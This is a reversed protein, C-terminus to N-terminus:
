QTVERAIPEAGEELLQLYYKELGPQREINRAIEEDIRRATENMLREVAGDAAGVGAEIQDIAQDLVRRVVTPSVFPSFRPIRGYPISEITLDHIEKEGPWDPHYFKEKSIYAQNGPIADVGENIIESYKAGALYQLFHLAHERNESLRNIGVGRVTLETFREAGEFRPIFVAGMRPPLSGEYPEGPHERDWREKAALMEMFIRRIQILNWRSGVFMALRGDAFWSFFSGGGWGGQGTVGAQQTPSPEVKHVFYLEHLFRAARIAPEEGLLCRTGDENFFAGGMGWLLPEFKVDAGGFVIPVSTDDSEYVTMRKALEIYKEWTLDKPPYPVGYRDFLDKNYILIRNAANAPYIYQRLEFTEPDRYQVLPRMAEPLTELGFGMENARETIDWLIGASVYTEISGLAVQGILDPGMGASCQVVVKMVGSNDPDIRLHYDPYLRNFWNVQPERQPNADTTWVLPIRDSGGQEPLMAITLGTWLLMLAAFGILLYKM